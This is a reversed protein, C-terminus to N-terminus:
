KDIQPLSISITTGENEVSDIKIEGQLLSVFYKVIKLSLGAGIEGGTGQFKPSPFSFVMESNKENMGTGFDTVSFVIQEESKIANFHIAQGPHSFKTANDLVKNFIFLFLFRDTAFSLDKDGHYQVDINKEKLKKEQEETLKLFLEFISQITLQPTFQGYQTKLWEGTDTVSQLNKETDQKIQPLFKFFDDKSIREAEVAELLWLISSFNEIFDHSLLSICGTKLDNDKKLKEIETKLEEIDNEM